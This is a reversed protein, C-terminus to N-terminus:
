ILQKDKTLRSVFQICSPPTVDEGRRDINKVLKEREFFFLFDNKVRRAEQRRRDEGTKTQNSHATPSPQLQLLQKTHM